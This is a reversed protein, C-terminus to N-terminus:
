SLADKLAKELTKIKSELVKIRDSSEETIILAKEVSRTQKKLRSKLSVFLYYFIFSSGIISYITLLIIAFGLKLNNISLKMFIHFDIPTGLNLVTIYGIHLLILSGILLFLKNM